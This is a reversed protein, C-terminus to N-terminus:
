IQNDKIVYHITAETGWNKDEGHQKLRDLDIVKFLGLDKDLQSFSKPCKYVEYFEELELPCHCAEDNIHGSTWPTLFVIKGFSQLLGEVDISLVEEGKYSIRYTAGDQWLPIRYRFM